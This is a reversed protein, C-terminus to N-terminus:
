GHPVVVAGGHTNVPLRERFSFPAHGQAMESINAQASTPSVPPLNYRVTLHSLLSSLLADRLRAQDPLGRIDIEEEVGVFEVGLVSRNEDMDVLRDDGFAATTAVHGDRLRVYLIDGVDNFRVSPEM